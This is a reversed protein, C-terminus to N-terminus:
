KNLAAEKRAVAEVVEESAESDVCQQNDEQVLLVVQRAVELLHQISDM